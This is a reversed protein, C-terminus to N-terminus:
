ITSIMNAEVLVYGHGLLKQIRLRKVFYDMDMVRIKNQFSFEVLKSIPITFSQTVPKGNLIIQHWEGWWSKYMGFPDDWRLSHDGIQNGDIDYPLGGSLPFQNSDSNEYMGRYFTIRDPCEEQTSEIIPDSDPFQMEYSVTGRMRCQAMKKMNFIVSPTGVIAEYGRQVDWLATCEAEFIRKGTMTPACGLTTYLFEVRADISYYAHQDIVYYIGPSVTSIDSTYISGDILSDAPKINKAYYEFAADSSDIKWCLYDPQDELDDVIADGTVYMSWDQKTPRNVLDKLPVMEITRQFINTFLGLCFGSMIKRLFANSPTKSVHNQLNMTKQIGSSTWMSRNNYLVLKRLEDTLQFRNVFKFDQQSFIQQLVYDLRVFPMLAPFGHDVDFEGTTPDFFNQIWSKPETYDAHEIFEPNFLPFFVHTYDLPSLATAKAHALVAAKNSFTVDGGLDITNLPVKKLGSLPNAVVKIRAKKSDAQTITLTGLFLPVGDAHVWCGEWKRFNRSNTVLHPNYLLVKNQRTLPLDAPFSFSGPVVTADDTSFVQNNLEFALDPVSELFEGTPLQISWGTTSM